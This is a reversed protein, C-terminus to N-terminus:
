RATTKPHIKTVEEALMTEASGISRGTAARQAEEDVLARMPDDPDLARRKKELQPWSRWM